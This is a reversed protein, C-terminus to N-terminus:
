GSAFDADELFHPGMPSLHPSENIRRVFQILLLQTILSCPATKKHAAGAQALTKKPELM